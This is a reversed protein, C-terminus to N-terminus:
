GARAQLSTNHGTVVAAQAAAPMCPIGWPLVNAGPAQGTAADLIKKKQAITMAPLLQAHLAAM